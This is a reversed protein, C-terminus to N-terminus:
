KSEKPNIKRLVVSSRGSCCLIKEDSSVWTFVWLLWVRRYISMPLPFWGKWYSLCKCMTIKTLSLMTLLAQTNIVSPCKMSLTNWQTLTSLDAFWGHTWDLGVQRFGAYKWRNRHALTEKAMLRPVTLSVQLRAVTGHHQQSLLNPGFVSTKKTMKSSM